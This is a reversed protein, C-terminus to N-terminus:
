NITPADTTFPLTLAAEVADKDRELGNAHSGLTPLNAGRIKKLWQELREANAARPTLMAAFQSILASLETM